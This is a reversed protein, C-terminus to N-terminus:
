LAMQQIELLQNELKLRGREREQRRRNNYTLTFYVLILLLLSILGVSVYFWTQRFWPSTITFKFTLPKPTWIGNENCAKVMFVYNGPELNTYNWENNPRLPSWERDRGVLKWKYKVGDPNLQNIGNFKFGLNNQTYTFELGDLTKENSLLNDYLLNIEEFSLRPPLNNTREFAPQYITLGNITGFLVTSNLGISAANQSCEIGSFGENAGFVSTKFPGKRYNIKVIGRATGFYISSQHDIGLYINRFGEPLKVETFDTASRYFGAGSPTGIWIRGRDDMLLTRVSTGPLGQKGSLNTTKNKEENFVVLGSGETAIWINKGDVLTANIRNNPLYNSKDLIYAFVLNADLCIVGRSATSVFIRHDKDEIINRIWKGTHTNWNDQRIFANDRWTWLGDGETGLFLVNHWSSYYITKVKADTFGNRADFQQILGNKITTIGPASTGLWMTSDPTQLCSYVNKGPLGTRNTYHVFLQGNYRSVGGGSSGIWVNGWDDELLSVINNRCLGETETIHVTKKDRQSYIFVGNSATGVWLNEHSDLLFCQVIESRKILPLNFPFLREGKLKYLSGGYTGVILEHNYEIFCRIATTELGARRGFMKTEPVGKSNRTLRVIGYNNGM